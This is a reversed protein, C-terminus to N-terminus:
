EDLFLVRPSHLLSAALECRMRQGLSLKRSPIKLFPGIELLETLEALTNTFEKENLEYIEKNLLFTEMPPLDWGLQNKQGMVLAIAKLFDKKREFPKFGFVSIQGATPYLLGALCKLTTTKGAGNPGIFGILEGEKIEFSVDNVAKVSEYRRFFLSKFSSLLGAEKQSVQYYKKLHSVSIVAM